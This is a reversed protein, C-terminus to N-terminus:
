MKAKSNSEHESRDQISSPVISAMTFVALLALNKMSNWERHRSPAKIEVLKLLVWIDAQRAAKQQIITPEYYVYLVQM